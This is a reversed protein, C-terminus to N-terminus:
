GLLLSLFLSTGYATELTLVYDITTKLTLSILIFKRLIAKGIKQSSFANPLFTSFFFIKLLEEKLHTFKTM